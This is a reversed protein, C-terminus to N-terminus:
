DEDSGYRRRLSESDPKGGLAASIQDWSWDALRAERVAVEITMQVVRSAEVAADVLDDVRPMMELVAVRGASHTPCRTAAVRAAHESRKAVLRQPPCDSEAEVSVTIRSYLQRLIQEPDSGAYGDIWQRVTAALEFALEADTNAYCVLVDAIASDQDGAGIKACLRARDPRNMFAKASDALAWALAGVDVRTM